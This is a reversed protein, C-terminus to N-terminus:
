KGSYQEVNRDHEEKSKAFAHAGDGKAMFYLYDSPEPNLVAQISALGPNCIPGPPLGPNNYTNYPSQITKPDQTLVPWWPSRKEGPKALPPALDPRDPPFKGYQATPDAQLPMRLRLRNLFVGAILPREEPRVAEREVIAALTVVQYLDLGQEKAKDRWEPTVRRDWDQLMLDLVQQPSATDPFQYTDPFLFGELGAPSGPPRNGLFEFDSRGQQVAALFTTAPCVGVQELLAAIEEARWGEPITVNKAPLRGHQLDATIEAMTMSPSLAYVGAQIDQDADMSQVVRAFLDADKVLGLRQLSDAVQSVTQGPDITVAIRRDDNPNAPQAVEAARVRLYASLVLRELTQNNVSFRVEPSNGRANLYVYWFGGALVFVAVSLALVLSVLRLLIRLANNV